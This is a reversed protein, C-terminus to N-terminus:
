WVLRYKAVLLDQVSLQVDVSMGAGDADGKSLAGNWLGRLVIASTNESPLDHDAFFPNGRSGATCPSRCRDEAIPICTACHHHTLASSVATAPDFLVLDYVGPPLAFVFIHTFVTDPTRLSLLFIVTPVFTGDSWNTM